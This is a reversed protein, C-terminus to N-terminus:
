RQRAPPEITPTLYIVAPHGSSDWGTWRPGGPETQMHPIDLTKGETGSPDEQKM